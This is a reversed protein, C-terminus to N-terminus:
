IEEFALLPEVLGRVTAALEAAHQESMLSFHDGPIGRVVVQAM